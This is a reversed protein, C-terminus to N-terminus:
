SKSRRVDGALFTIIGAKGSASNVKTVNVGKTIRRENKPEDKAPKKAM